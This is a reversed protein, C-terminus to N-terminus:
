REGSGGMSGPFKKENSPLSSSHPTTIMEHIRDLVGNMDRLVENNWFRLVTYGEKKLWITRENDKRVGKESNHQGGDLEIIVKKELCAFDVIFEGIVQQRRFKLGAIQRNRLHYWLLKETDTQDQRLSRSYTIKRKDLM